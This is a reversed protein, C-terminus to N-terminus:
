RAGPHPLSDGPLRRDAYDVLADVDSGALLEVATLVEERPWNWWEMALLTDRTRQDFRHRIVRAPSGGVIAFPAVDKTVVAGAAVIAGHGISRGALILANAGIWVDSGVTTDGAYRPFGDGGAGDLGAVIRIPSTTIRDVPHEGGLLFVVGEAISCYSGIRLTPKEHVFTRVDPFGYTGVGVHVRGDRVLRQFRVRDRGALLEHVRGWIRLVMAIM